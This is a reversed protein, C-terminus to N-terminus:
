TLKVAKRFDIEGGQPLILGKGAMGEYATDELPFDRLGDVFDEVQKRPYKGPVKFFLTRTSPNYSLFKVGMRGNYIDYNIDVDDINEKIAEVAHEQLFKGIEADSPVYNDEDNKVFYPKISITYDKKGSRRNASRSKPSKVSRRKGSRSKPSKVSRRKGSRSKPSKVSRRKGSRSRSKRVKPSKSRSPSRNLASLLESKRLKSYGKIGKSKALKKLEVVTLANM